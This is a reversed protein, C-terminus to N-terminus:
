SAAAAPTVVPFNVETGAVENIYNTWTNLAVDWPIYHDSSPVIIKVGRTSMAAVELHLEEWLLTRQDRIDQTEDKTKPYPPHTLVFIPM